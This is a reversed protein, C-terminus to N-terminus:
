VDIQTNNILYQLPYACSYYYKLEANYTVTGTTIDNSQVVGSINVTEINSFESFIGTGVNKITQPSFSLFLILHPCINFCIHTM